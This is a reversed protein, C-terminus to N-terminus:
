CIEFNEFHPIYLTFKPCNPVWNHYGLQYLREDTVRSIAPELGPPARKRFFTLLEHYNLQVQPRVGPTNLFGFVTHLELACPHM